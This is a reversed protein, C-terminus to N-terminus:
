REKPTTVTTSWMSTNGSEFGDTFVPTGLPSANVTNSDATGTTSYAQIKYTYLQGQFVADDVYLGIGSGVDAVPFFNTGDSSRLVRFGDAGASPIWTVTIRGIQSLAGLGTPAGPGSCSTGANFDLLQTLMRTESELGRRIRLVPRYDGPSCYRHSTVPTGATETYTGNGDWDYDYAQPNGAISAGFTVTDGSSFICGIFGCNTASFANIALPELEDITVSVPNSTIPGATCNRIQVTVNFNGASSYAHQPNPGTIPNGIWGTSQGDGFNWNWETAGQTAVHFQVTAGAFPDFTPASGPGTFALAPLANIQIADSAETAVGGPGTIAVEATYQGPSQGPPVDWVFPNVNGGTAVVVQSSNKVQWSYVLPPQGTVGNASFTVQSCPFATSVNSTVSDVNPAPDVVVVFEQATNSSGFGNSAVLTVQYGGQPSPTSFTVQPYRLTSTSPTGNQFTWSWSDPDGTSTDPNFTVVQGAYPTPPSWTFDAIPPSSGVLQHSDIYSFAARYFYNGKFKGRLPTTNKFGTTCGSYYWGWYGQSHVHPTVDRPNTPSSVDLLYERQAICPGQSQNGVYLFPTSGSSSYTLLEQSGGVVGSPVPYTRIPAPLSCSGSTICSVNYIWLDERGIAAMYYTSGVRWMAVEGAFGPLTGTIRQQPNLPNAVNWIEINRTVRRIALYDGTGHVWRAGLGGSPGVTGKFVNPCGIGNLTNEQCGTYSSASTMDYILLGGGGNGTAEDTVFAYHRGGLTTSYVDAAFIGDGGGGDQYHVIPTVKSTTNWIVLGQRNGATAVINHVNPPADVGKYFWDTDAFFWIPQLSLGYSFSMDLPNSPNSVDYITLGRGSAVFVYNGEIDVDFPFSVNHPETNPYGHSSNDGLVPGPRLEGGSWREMPAPAVPSNNQAWLAGGTLMAALGLLVPLLCYQSPVLRRLCERRAM